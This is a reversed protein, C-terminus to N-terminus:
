IAPIVFGAFPLKKAVHEAEQKSPYNNKLQVRYFEGQRITEAPAYRSIKKALVEANERNKFSGFRVTFSQQGAITTDRKTIKVRPKAPKAKEPVTVKPESKKAHSPHLHKTTDQQSAQHPVPAASEMALSYAAIRSRSIQDLSPDPYLSLQKQYLSVAQPGDESLLAELVLKESPLTVKHRLNELLYVKDEAVYRLIERAYSQEGASHLVPPCFLAVSLAVSLLAAIKRILLITKDSLM